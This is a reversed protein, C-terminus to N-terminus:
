FIPTITIETRENVAVTLTHAGDAAAEFNVEEDSTFRYAAKPKLGAITLQKSGADGAPYVVLSLVGNETKAKAVLVDSYDVSALYPNSATEEQVTTVLARLGNARGIRAMFANANAWLSAKSHHAVGGDIVTPCDRELYDLLLDATEDDGMERAALATAAYSSARSFRYNGVDAPWLAHRWSKGKMDLKLTEWQRRAIDPLVANLFFCPFAQMVVGGILPPAFGTYNSRFPIFRGSPTIFEMELSAKFDDSISEWFQTGNRTDNARIATATIANCLPYVWNPECSLLGYKAEKYQSVLVQTMENQSYTFEAKESQCSLGDLAAVDHPNEQRAWALQAGVFGSYMINDQAIPDAGKRLNGWINELKWYKWIRHNEQKAKLNIQAQSIYGTFDPLYGAQAISLAYSIFNIQYRVAATQFQDLWEFGEYEDVPQLARDLLLRMYQLESLTLEDRHPSTQKPEDMMAAALNQNLIDRRNQGRRLSHQQYGWILAVIIPGTAFATGTVIPEFVTSSKDLQWYGSILATILWLFPPLIINGTAFWLFGAFCLLGLSILCLVLDINVVAAELSWGSLFGTGPFVLSHGIASLVSNDATVVSLLAVGYLGVYILLMRLQRLRTLPGTALNVEPFLTLHQHHLISQM